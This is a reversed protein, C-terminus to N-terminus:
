PLYLAGGCVAHSAGTATPLFNPSGAARLAGALAMLLAEKFHVAEAGPVEIQWGRDAALIGLREILFANCAGGGTALLRGHSAALSLAVQGAIFEVATALKDGVTGPHELFLRVPGEQVQRNSLSRPPPTALWPDSQAAQLLDERITGERAKLGDRDMSEGMTAALANLIQNAGCIDWAAIREGHRLTLNAIGGLNLWGGHDPFLLIDALPAMPAGQGGAAMDANRFDCVVPIGCTQALHAGDGIQTSFPVPTAPEHFITHGHSAVLDPTQGAEAHFDRALVGLLRGFAAHAASFEFATGMPLSKLRASWPDPLPITQAAIIRWDHVVSTETDIELECLALDVGDLSSGSMIGTVTVRQM